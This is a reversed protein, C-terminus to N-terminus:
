NIRESLGLLYDSTCNCAKACALVDYISITMLVTSAQGSLLAKAKTKAAEMSGVYTNEIYAAAIDQETAGNAKMACALRKAFLKRM